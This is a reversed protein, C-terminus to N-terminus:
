YNKKNKVSFDNNFSIGDRLSFLFANSDKILKTSSNWTSSTYGGILFKKVVLLVMIGMQYNGYNEDRNGNLNLSLNITKQKQWFLFLL